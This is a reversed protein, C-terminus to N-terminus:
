QVFQWSLKNNSSSILKVKGNSKNKKIIGDGLPTAHILKSNSDFVLDSIIGNEKINYKLYIKYQTTDLKDRTIKLYANSVNDNNQITGFYSGSINTYDSKYESKTKSIFSSNSNLISNFVLFSIILLALAWIAIGLM